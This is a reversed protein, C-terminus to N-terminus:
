VEETIVIQLIDAASRMGIVHRKAKPVVVGLATAILMMAVEVVVVTSVQVVHPREHGRHDLSGGAIISGVRQFRDVIVRRLLM